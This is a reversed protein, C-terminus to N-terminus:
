ACVSHLFTCFKSCILDADPAAFEPALDYGVNHDSFPVSEFIVYSRQVNPYLLDFNALCFCVKRFFFMYQAATSSEPSSMYTQLRSYDLRDTAYATDMNGHVADESLCFLMFICYM